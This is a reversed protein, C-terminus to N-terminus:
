DEKKGSKKQDAKKKQRKDWEGSSILKQKVELSRRKEEAEKRKRRKKDSNKEHHQRDKFNSIVKEKQVMGKFTRAAYEFDDRSSSRVIVQLPKFKELYDASGPGKTNIAKSM